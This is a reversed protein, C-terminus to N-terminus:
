EIKDNEWERWNASSKELVKLAKSFGKRNLDGYLTIHIRLERHLHYGAGNRLDPHALNFRELLGLVLEVQQRDIAPLLTQFMERGLEGPSMYLDRARQYDAPEMYPQFALRFVEEDPQDELIGQTDDFVIEESNSFM